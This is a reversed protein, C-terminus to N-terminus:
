FSLRKSYTKIVKLQNELIVEEAADIMLYPYRNRQYTLIDKNNLYM